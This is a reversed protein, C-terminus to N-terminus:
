SKTQYGSGPVSLFCRFNGNAVTCGFFCFAFLALLVSSAVKSKTSQYYIEILPVGSPTNLVADMDTIAYMCACAFPWATGLGILIPYLIIKPTNVAPEPDGRM